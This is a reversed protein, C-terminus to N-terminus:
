NQIELFMKARGGMSKAQQTSQTASIVCARSPDQGFSQKMEWTHIRTIYMRQRGTYGENWIILAGPSNM